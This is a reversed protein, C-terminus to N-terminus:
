LYYSINYFNRLALFANGSMCYSVLIFFITHTVLIILFMELITKLDQKLIDIM